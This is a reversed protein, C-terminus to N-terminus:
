NSFYLVSAVLGVILLMMYFLFQAGNTSKKRESFNVHQVHKGDHNYIRVERALIAEYTLEQLVRLEVQSLGHEDREMVQILCLPNQAVVSLNSNKILERLTLSASEFHGIISRPHDYPVQAHATAIVTGDAQLAQMHQGYVQIWLGQPYQKLHDNLM